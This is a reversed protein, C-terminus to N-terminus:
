IKKEGFLLATATQGATLTVTFSGTTPTTLKYGVKAVVRVVYKGAALSSVSWNGASDTTVSKPTGTGNLYLDITWGSLGAEGTSRKRDGNADNFVTGSILVRQTDGFTKGVLALGNTLVLDFFGASPATARFGAPVIQRLRYAGAPLATFRFAGAADSVVSKEGADLKGNKNTDLFLKVGALGKEPGARVGDSNADNLVTGAISATAPVPIKVTFTGLIRAVALNGSSDAVKGGVLSVTYAGNDGADWKGGPPTMSYTATRPTGDGPPQVSGLVMAATQSFGGPGTVRVAGALTSTNIAQNDSYTVSFPYYTGGATSVPTLPVGLAATPPTTDPIPSLMVSVGSGNTVAIDPKGDGNLDAVVLPGSSTAGIPFIEPTDFAGHGNGLRIAIDSGYVAALDAHGDGNFDGVGIATPDSGISSSLAGEFGGFGDGLLVSYTGPGANVTVLDEAGDGNFDYYGPALVPYFGVAYNSAAFFTGNAIYHQDDNPDVTTNGILVSVYDSGATNYGAVALDNVRDGDFDGVTVSTPHQVGVAFTGGTSFSGDGKNLLIGVSGSGANTVVLDPIGDGNFDDAAISTATVSRPYQERTVDNFTGDGSGFFIDVENFNGLDSLSVALDMAGDHNFDAAAIAQPYEHSRFLIPGGFAGAGQNLLVSVNPPGVPVALDLKHDNNFDGATFGAVSTQAGVDYYVPSLLQISLCLRQELPEVAALLRRAALPRRRPALLACEHTQVRM